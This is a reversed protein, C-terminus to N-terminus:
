NAWAHGRDVALGAYTEIQSLSTELMSQTTGDYYKRYWDVTFQMTENFELVPEWDLLARAKDCNLSLLGAEHLTKNNVPETEVSLGPLMAQITDTVVRVSFIDRQAPGFNFPEGHFEEHTSVVSGLRLYGSLPELVHQWPRTSDPYRIVLSRGSDWARMLDPVLRDQAWDGGGVVNGARGVVVRVGNAAETFFSRVFTSVIMEAASKSASYPDKGGLRDSERYGYFTEVNEYCKDSTIIIATCPNTIKRLGNLINATGMANTSLTLLPEKYARRVLAQAALHFVYDPQHEGLFNEVAGADRIDLFHSEIRQGLAAAEFHNPDTPYDISAGVVEAGLQSLWLGLWSGKFGTHGFVVVKRGQYANGFFNQDM